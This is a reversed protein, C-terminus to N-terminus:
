PWEAVSLKMTWDKEFIVMEGFFTMELIVCFTEIFNLPKLELKKFKNCVMFVM